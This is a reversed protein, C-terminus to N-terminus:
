QFGGLGLGVQLQQREGDAAIDGVLDKVCHQDNRAISTLVRLV